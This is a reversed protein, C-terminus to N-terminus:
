GGKNISVDPTPSYFLQSRVSFLSVRQDLSNRGRVGLSERRFDGRERWRGKTWLKFSRNPELRADLAPTIFEFILYAYVSIPNSVFFSLRFAIFLLYPSVHSLVSLIVIKIKVARM